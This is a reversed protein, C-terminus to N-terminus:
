YSGYCTPRDGYVSGDSSRDNTPTHYSRGAQIVRAPETDAAPCGARVRLEM